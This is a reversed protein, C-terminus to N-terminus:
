GEGYFKREIERLRKRIEPNSDRTAELLFIDHSIAELALNVISRNATYLAKANSIGIEGTMTKNGDAILTFNRLFQGKNQIVREHEYVEGIKFVGEDTIIGIIILIIKIGRASAAFLDEKVKEFDELWLDFHLSSEAKNIVQQMKDLIKSSGEITLYRDKSVVMEPLLTKIKKITEKLDRELQEAIEEFNRASYRISEEDIRYAQGKQVLNNLTSYANPKPIGSHKAVEYGNLDGYELLTIYTRAEYDSFGIKKLETVLAELNSM